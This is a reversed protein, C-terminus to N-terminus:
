YWAMVFCLMQSSQSNLRSEKTSKSFKYSYKAHERYINGHLIGFCYMMILSCLPLFQKRICLVICNVRQHLLQLRNSYMMNRRVRYIRGVQLFTTWFMVESICNLLTSNKSGCFPLIVAWLCNNLVFKALNRLSPTVKGM